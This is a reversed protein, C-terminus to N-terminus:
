NGGGTNYDSAKETYVNVDWEVIRRMYLEPFCRYTKSYAANNQINYDMNPVFLTAQELSLAKITTVFQIM